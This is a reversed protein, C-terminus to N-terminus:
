KELHPLGIRKNFRVNYGEPLDSPIGKKPKRKSFFYPTLIKGNNLEVYGKYLTWSKYMYTM